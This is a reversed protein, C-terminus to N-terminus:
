IQSKPLKNRGFRNEVGGERISLGQQFSITKKAALKTLTTRSRKEAGNRFTLDKVLLNEDV